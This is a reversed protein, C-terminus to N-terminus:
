PISFRPCAFDERSYRAAVRVPMPAFDSHANSTGPWCGAHPMDAMAVRLPPIALSLFRANVFPADCEVGDEIRDAM